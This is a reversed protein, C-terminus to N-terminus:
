NREFGLEQLWAIIDAESNSVNRGRIALGDLVTSGPLSEKLDSESRGLGSGEHTCFPIITKGEFDYEELFTFVPQPLTGWWNPYGLFIVEYEDMNEVHSRLKPRADENQETRAQDITADSSAPYKEETEILFLEGGTHQQILSAAYATNGTDPSAEVNLSASSVADVTPDLESNGASSFYAILINKDQLEATNESVPPVTSDETQKSSCGGFTLLLVTLILLILTKKM